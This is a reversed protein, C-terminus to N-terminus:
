SKLNVLFEKRQIIKKLVTCADEVAQNFAGVKFTMGDNMKDSHVFNESIMPIDYFYSDTASFFPTLCKVHERSSVFSIPTTYLYRIRINIWDAIEGRGGYGDQRIYLWFEFGAHLAFKWQPNLWNSKVNIKFEDFGSYGSDTLEYFNEYQCEDKSDAKLVLGVSSLAAHFEFISRLLKDMAPLKHEDADELTLLHEAEPYKCIHERFFTVAKLEEVPNVTQINNM